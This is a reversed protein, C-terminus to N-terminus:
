LLCIILKVESILKFSSSPSFMSITLQMLCAIPLGSLISSFPVLSPLSSFCNAMAAESGQGAVVSLSCIKAELTVVVQMVINYNLGPSKSSFARYDWQYHCSATNDGASLYMDTIVSGQLDIERLIHCKEHSM